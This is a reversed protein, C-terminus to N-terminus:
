HLDRNIEYFPEKSHNKNMRFSTHTSCFWCWISKDLIHWCLNKKREVTWQESNWRFRVINRSPVLSFENELRSHTITEWCMRWWHSCWNVKPTDLKSNRNSYVFTNNHRCCAFPLCHRNAIAVIRAILDQLNWMGRTPFKLLPAVTGNRNGKRQTGM